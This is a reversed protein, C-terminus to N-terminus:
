PARTSNVIHPDDIMTINQFDDGLAPLHDIHKGSMLMAAGRDATRDMQRERLQQMVRLVNEVLLARDDDVAAVAQSVQARSSRRLEFEEAIAVHHV